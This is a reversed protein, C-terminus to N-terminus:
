QQVRFAELEPKGEEPLWGPRRGKGTWGRGTVPDRFLVPRPEGKRVATKAQAKQGFQPFVDIVTLEHQAILTQIQELANNRQTTRILNIQQELEERQKILDSLSVQKDAM